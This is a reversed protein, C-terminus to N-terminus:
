SISIDEKISKPGNQNEIIDKTSEYYASLYPQINAIKELICSRKFPDKCEHYDKWMLKQILELQDIRELHGDEFGYKAINYLRELKQNQLKRKMRCYTAQSVPFGADNMYELSQQITLRMRM